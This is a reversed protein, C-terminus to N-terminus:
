PAGRALGGFKAPAALEAAKTDLVIEAGEARFAEVLQKQYRLRSADVVVRRAPLRGEALMDALLHHGTDGIRLFDAVPQAPARLPLIQASM